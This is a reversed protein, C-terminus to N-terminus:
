SNFISIAMQMNHLGYITTHQAPDTRAGIDDKIPTTM